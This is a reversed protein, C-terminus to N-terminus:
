VARELTFRFVVLAHWVTSDEKIIAPSSRRRCDLLKESLLPLSARDFTDCIDAISGAAVTDSDARVSFQIDTYEVYYENPSDDRTQYTPAGPIITLVCNPLPSDHPAKSLYCGDPFTEALAASGNFKTQIAALLDLM